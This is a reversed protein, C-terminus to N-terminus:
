VRYRYTTTQVVANQENTELPNTHNATMRAKDVPQGNMELDTKDGTEADNALLTSTEEESADTM